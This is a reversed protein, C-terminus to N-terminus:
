EDKNEKAANEAAQAYIRSPDINPKAAVVPAAPTAPTKKKSVTLPKESVASSDIHRKFFLARGAKREALMMKFAPCTQDVLCQRCDQFNTIGARKARIANIIHQCVSFATWRSTGNCEFRYTNIGGMSLKIPLVEAKAEDTPLIPM